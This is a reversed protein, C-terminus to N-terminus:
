SVAAEAPDDADTPPAFIGACPRIEGGRPAGAGGGGAARSSHGAEPAAEAGPLVPLTPPVPQVLSATRSRASPSGSLTLVNPM